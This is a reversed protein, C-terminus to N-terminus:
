SLRMPSNISGCIANSSPCIPLSCAHNTLNRCCFNANEIPLQQSVFSIMTERPRVLIGFQKYLYDADSITTQTDYFVM